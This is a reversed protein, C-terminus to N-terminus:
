MRLCQKVRKFQLQDSNFNHDPCSPFCYVLARVYISYLAKVHKVLLLLIYKVEM